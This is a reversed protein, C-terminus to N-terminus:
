IDKRLSPTNPTASIPAFHVGLTWKFHVGMIEGSEMISVLDPAISGKATASITITVEDSKELIEATGVVYRSEDVFVPIQTTTKRPESAAM